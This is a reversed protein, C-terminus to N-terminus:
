DCIQLLVDGECARSEGQEVQRAVEQVQRALRRIAHQYTETEENAIIATISPIEGCQEEIISNEKKSTAHLPLVPLSSHSKAFTKYFKYPRTRTVDLKQHAVAIVGKSFHSSKLSFEALIEIIELILITKVLHNVVASMEEKIISKEEHARNQLNHLDIAQRTVAGPLKAIPQFLLLM